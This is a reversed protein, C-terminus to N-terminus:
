CIWRIKSHRFPCVQVTQTTNSLLVESFWASRIRMVPLHIAKRIDGRSALSLRLVARGLPITVEENGILIQAERLGLFVARNPCEDRFRVSLTSSIWGEM